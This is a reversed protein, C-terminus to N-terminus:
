PPTVQTSVLQAHIDMLGLSARNLQEANLRLTFQFHDPSSLIVWDPFAANETLSIRGPARGVRREGWFVDAPVNTTIALQPTQRQEPAASAM